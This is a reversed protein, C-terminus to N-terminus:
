LNCNEADFCNKKRSFEVFSRWCLVQFVSLTQSRLLYNAPPSVLV